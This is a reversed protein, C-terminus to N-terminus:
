EVRIVRFNDIRLVPNPIGPSLGVGVHSAHTGEPLTPTLSYENNFGKMVSLRIHRWQNMAPGALHNKWKESHEGAVTEPLSMYTVLFEAQADGSIFYDFEIYLGKETTLVGARKPRVAYKALSLRRSMFENPPQISELVWANEDSMTRVRKATDTEWGTSTEEFDWSYLVTGVEAM